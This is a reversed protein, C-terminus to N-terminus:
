FVLSEFFVLERFIQRQEGKGSSCSTVFERM